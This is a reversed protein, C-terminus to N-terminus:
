AGEQSYPLISQRVDIFVKARPSQTLLCQLTYLIYRIGDKIGNILFAGSDTRSEDPM